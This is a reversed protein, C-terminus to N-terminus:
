RDFRAGQPNSPLLNLILVILGGLYPILHLLYMWGSFNADHLRRVTLAIEPIIAGLLVVGWLVLVVVGPATIQVAGSATPTGTAAMVIAFVIGFAANLLVFFLWAWWFESRSARGSFVAYKSFFRQVAQGFTAGYLPQSLTSDTM